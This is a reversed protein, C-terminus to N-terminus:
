VMFLNNVAPSNRVKGDHWVTEDGEPDADKTDVTMFVLKRKLGEKKTHKLAEKGIFDATQM